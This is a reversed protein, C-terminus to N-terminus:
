RSWTVWASLPQSKSKRSFHPAAIRMDRRHDPDIAAPECEEGTMGPSTGPM